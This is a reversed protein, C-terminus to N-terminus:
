YTFPHLLYTSASSHLLHNYRHESLESSCFTCAHYSTGETTETKDPSKYQLYSLLHVTDMQFGYSETDPHM